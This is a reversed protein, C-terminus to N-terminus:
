GEASATANAVADASPMTLHDLVGSRQVADIAPRLKRGIATDRGELWQPLYSGQAKAHITHVWTTKDNGYAVENVRRIGVHERSILAQCHEVYKDSNGLMVVLKTSDPIHGLHQNVCNKAIVQNEKAKVFKELIGGGSKSYSKKQKDWMAVSCRFLSGFHFKTEGANIHNGVFDSEELLGLRKLIATLQPRMGAFAIEDFPLTTKQNTGRSFGLVVVLPRTAGWSANPKEIKWEPPNSAGLFLQHESEPMCRSCGIWGHSPFTTNTNGM